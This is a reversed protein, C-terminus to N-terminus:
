INKIFLLLILALPFSKQLNGLARSFIVKSNTESIKLIEAIEKHTLEDWVRMIIIERQQEGLKLLHKKIQELALAKEANQEVDESSAVNLANELGLEPKNKRYHDILNNKAIQYLWTSFKAKGSNFSALNDLAKFFTLSTLDEATERHSTRFYIYSYIKQVYKDYLNGFSETNGSLCDKILQSDNIDM